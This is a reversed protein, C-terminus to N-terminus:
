SVDPNNAFLDSNVINNTHDIGFGKHCPTEQSSSERMIRLTHTIEDM